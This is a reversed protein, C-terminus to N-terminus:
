SETNYSESVAWPLLHIEPGGACPGVHSRGLLFYPDWGHTPYAPDQSPAGLTHAEVKMYTVGEACELGM